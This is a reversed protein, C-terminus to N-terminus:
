SAAEVLRKLNELSKTINPKHRKPFGVLRLAWPAKATSLDFTETVLSNGTPLERINYRWRHGGIHAWAIQSDTEFEVVRSTMKYPLGFMKMAMGFRDGMALENPGLHQAVVSDDGSIAAHNSPDRLYKFVDAPSAEIEISAWAQNRDSYSRM